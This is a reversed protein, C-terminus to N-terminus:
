KPKTIGPMNFHKYFAYKMYEMVKLKFFKKVQSTHGSRM